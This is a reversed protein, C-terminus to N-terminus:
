WIKSNTQYQVRWDRAHHEKETFCLFGPPFLLGTGLSTYYPPLHHQTTVQTGPFETMRYTAFFNQDYDVRQVKQATRLSLNWKLSDLM